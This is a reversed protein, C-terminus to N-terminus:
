ENATSNLKWLIMARWAVQNDYWSTKTKDFEKESTRWIIKEHHQTVAEHYYWIQKERDVYRKTRWTHTVNLRINNYCSTMKIDFRWPLGTKLKCDEAKIQIYVKHELSSKSKRRIKDYLIQKIESKYWKM